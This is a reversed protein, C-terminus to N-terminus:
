SLINGGKKTRRTNVTLVRVGGDSSQRKIGQDFYFVTGYSSWLFYSFFRFVLTFTIQQRHYLCHLAPLWHSRRGSMWSELDVINYIIHLSWFKFIFYLGLSVFVLYMPLYLSIYLCCIYIKLFRSTPGPKQEPKLESSM